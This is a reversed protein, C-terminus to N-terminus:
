TVIRLRLVIAFDNAPRNEGSMRLGDFSLQGHNSLSVM